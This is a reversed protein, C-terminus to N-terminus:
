RKAALYESVYEKADRIATNLEAWDLRFFENGGGAVVKKSRLRQHLYTECAVADETEIQAVETLQYPNGRSLQEITQAITGKTRGIKFVDETGHRLVYVYAM